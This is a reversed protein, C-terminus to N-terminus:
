RATVWRYISTITCSCPTQSWSFMYLEQCPPAWYTVTRLTTSIYVSPKLLLSFFSHSFFSNQTQQSSGRCPWCPWSGGLLIEANELHINSSHLRVQYKCFTIAKENRWCTAKGRKLRYWGTHQKVTHCVTSKSIPVGLNKIGVGASVQKPLIRLKKPIETELIM